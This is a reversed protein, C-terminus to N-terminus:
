TTSSLLAGRHILLILSKLVTSFPRPLPPGASVDPVVIVVCYQYSAPWDGTHVSAESTRVRELM